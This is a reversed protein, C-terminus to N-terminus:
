VLRLMRGWPPLLGVLFHSLFLALTAEEGSASGQAPPASLSAPAGPPTGVTVGVTVEAKLNCPRAIVRVRVAM